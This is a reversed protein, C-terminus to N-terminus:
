LLERFQAESLGAQKIILKLLSRKVDGGHVPVCTTLNEVPHTLFYHSGKQGDPVFGGRESAKIIKGASLTPLRTM